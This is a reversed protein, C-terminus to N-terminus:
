LVNVVHIPTADQADETADSAILITGHKPFEVHIGGPTESGSATM